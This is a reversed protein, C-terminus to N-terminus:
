LGLSNVNKWVRCPHICAIESEISQVDEVLAYLCKDYPRLNAINLNIFPCHGVLLIKRRRPFAGVEKHGLQVLATSSWLRVQEAEQWKRSVFHVVRESWRFDLNASRGLNEKGKGMTELQPFIAVNGWKPRKWVGRWSVRKKPSGILCIDL